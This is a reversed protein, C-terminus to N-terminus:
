WWYLWSNAYYQEWMCWIYADCFLQPQPVEKSQSIWSKSSLAPDGLGPQKSGHVTWNLVELSPSEVVETPLGHWHATVSVTFLHKTIDSTMEQTETQTQQKQDQWQADSLLPVMKKVGEWWINICVSLDAQSKKLHFLALARLREEPDPYSILM